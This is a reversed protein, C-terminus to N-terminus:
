EVRAGAGIPRVPVRAARRETAGFAEGDRAEIPENGAAQRAIRLSRIARVRGLEFLEGRGLERVRKLDTGVIREDTQFAARLEQSHETPDDVRM